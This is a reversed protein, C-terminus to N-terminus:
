RLQRARSPLFNSVILGGSGSSSSRAPSGISSSARGEEAADQQSDSETSGSGSSSVSVSSRQPTALGRRQCLPCHNKRKLWDKLCEVCYIHGCPIDGIRDGINVECLCIACQVDEGDNNGDDTVTTGIMSVASNLVSALSFITSKNDETEEAIAAQIKADPGAVSAESSDSIVNEAEETVMSSSRSGDYKKVKLEMKQHWGTAILTNDVDNANANANNSDRSSGGEENTEGRRSALRIERAEQRRRERLFASRLLWTARSPDREIMTEIDHLLMERETTGNRQNCKWCLKRRVFAQASTGQETCTFAYTLAMFWFVCIFWFGRIFAGGETDKFCTIPGDVGDVHCSDFVAPCFEFGRNFYQSCWCVKVEIVPNENTYDDEFFVTTFAEVFPNVEVYQKLFSSYQISYTRNTDLQCQVSDLMAISRAEMESQQAVAPRSLALLLLYIIATTVFTWPRAPSPLAFQRQM